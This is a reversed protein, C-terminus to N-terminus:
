FVKITLDYSTNPQLGTVFNVFVTGSGYSCNICVPNSFIFSTNGANSINVLIFGTPVGTLTSKFQQPTFTAANGVAYDPNTQFRITQIQTALNNVETLGRNFLNYISRWNTNMSDLLRDVWDPVDAGLSGKSIQQFPPLQQQLPM